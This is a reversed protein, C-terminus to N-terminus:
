VKVRSELGSVRFVCWGEPLGVRLAALLRAGEEGITTNQQSPRTPTRPHLAAEEQKPLDGVTKPELDRAGNGSTYHNPTSKSPISSEPTDLPVHERDYTANESPETAHHRPAQEKLSAAGNEAPPSPLTILSLLAYAM